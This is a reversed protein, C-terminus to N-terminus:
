ASYIRKNGLYLATVKKADHMEASSDIEAKLNTGEKVSSPLTGNMDLYIEGVKPAECRIQTAAKGKDDKGRLINVVRLDLTEITGTANM